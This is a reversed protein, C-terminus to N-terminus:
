QRKSGQLICEVDGSNRKFIKGAAADMYTQREEPALRGALREYVNGRLLLVNKVQNIAEVEELSHGKRPYNWTSLIKKTLTLM